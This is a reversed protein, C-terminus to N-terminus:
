ETSKSLISQGGSREASTDASYKKRQVPFRFSRSEVNKVATRIIKVTVPM